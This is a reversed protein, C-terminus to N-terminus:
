MQTTPVVAVTVSVSDLVSAVTSGFVAARIAGHASRGLVLLDGDEVTTPLFYAASGELLEGTVEGCCGERAREVAADLTCAADIQTIDRGATPRDGVRAYPYQWVHVVKLPAGHANAEGIAWALAADSAPSADVGVVVRDAILEHGRVIVVPCDAHRVVGRATGGLWLGTESIHRSPGIVVMANGDVHKSLWYWAAGEFSELEISLNPHRRHIAEHLSLLEEDDHLRVARPLDAIVPLHISSIVRLRAGRRVAEASAWRVVAYGHETRDFGVTVVPIV